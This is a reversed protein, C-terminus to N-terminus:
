GGENLLSQDELFEFLLEFFAKVQKEPAIEQQEIYIQVVKEWGIASSKINLKKKCIWQEFAPLLMFCDNMFDMGSVFHVAEGLTVEGLYMGPRKAVAKLKEIFM